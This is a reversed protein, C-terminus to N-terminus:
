QAPPVPYSCDNFQSVALSIIERYKASLKYKGLNANHNSFYDIAVDSNAMICLLNPVMVLKKFLEKTSANVEEPEILRLRCM